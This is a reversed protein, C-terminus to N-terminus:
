HRLIDEKVTMGAFTNRDESPSPQLKWVSVAFILQLSCVVWVICYIVLPRICAQSVAATQGFGLLETLKVTVAM